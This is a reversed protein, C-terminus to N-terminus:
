ARDQRVAYYTQGVTVGGAAGEFGVTL